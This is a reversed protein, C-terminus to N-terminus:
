AVAVGSIIASSITAASLDGTDDIGTSASPATRAARRMESRMHRGGSCYFEQKRGQHKLREYQGEELGVYIGCSCCQAQALTIAM